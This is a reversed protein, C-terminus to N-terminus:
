LVESAYIVEKNRLMLISDPKYKTGEIELWDFEDTYHNQMQVEVAGQRLAGYVFRMKQDSMGMVAAYCTDKVPEGQKYDGTSTDYVSEGATVFYIKKDYRM